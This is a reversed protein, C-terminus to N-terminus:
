KWGLGVFAVARFGVRGEGDTVVLGDGGEEVGRGLVVRFGEEVRGREGAGWGRGVMMRLTEVIWYAAEEVGEWWAVAEVEGEEVREFGGTRLTGALKGPVQWPELVPMRTKPEGPKLMEEVEHLLPLWDIRKWTTLATVGGPKLTRHLERAGAVPSSLAFIALSTFSLDFTSDPFAGLDTSDMIATDTKVGPTNYLSPSPSSILARNAAVFDPSLDVATIHMFPHSTLTPSRLCQTTLVLPGCANDLIRLPHTLPPLSPTILTILHNALIINVGGTRQSYTKAMDGSFTASLQTLDHDYSNHTHPHSPDFPTNPPHESHPHPHSM